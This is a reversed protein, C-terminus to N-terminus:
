RLGQEKDIKERVAEIVFEARSRFDKGSTRWVRDIMEVLEAPIGVNVYRKRM